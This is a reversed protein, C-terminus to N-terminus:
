VVSKRDETTLFTISYGLVGAPVFFGFISIIKTALISSLTLSGAFICLLIIFFKNEKTM